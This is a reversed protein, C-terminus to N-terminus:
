LEGRTRMIEDTKQLWGELAIMDNYTYSLLAEIKLEDFYEWNDFGCERALVEGYEWAAIECPVDTEQKDFHFLDFDGKFNYKYDLYHGIEHFLAAERFAKNDAKASDRDIMVAHYGNGCNLFMPCSALKGILIDVENKELFEFAKKEAETLEEIPSVKDIILERDVLKLGSFYSMKSVENMEGLVKEPTRIDKLIAKVTKM